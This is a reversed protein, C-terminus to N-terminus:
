CHGARQPTHGEGPVWVWCPHCSLRVLRTLHRHHRRPMRHRCASRCEVRGPNRALHIGTGLCHVRLIWLRYGLVVNGAELLSGSDCGSVFVLSYRILSPRTPDHGKVLLPYIVVAAAPMERAATKTELGISKESNSLWLRM